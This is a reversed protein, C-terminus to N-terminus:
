EGNLAELVTRRMLEVPATQGTWLECQAVAQFVFMATGDVTPCGKARAAALLATELPNYVIDMVLTRSTLGEVSVPMADIRPVMGVSTANILIDVGGLDLDDLSTFGASLDRALARGKEESRNAIVLSGGRQVIGYGVARAAGGAGILAVKKGAITGRTELARMAGEADTNYGVLRGDRNVLTNVAGIKRATDNVEDLHAMVETKHPITVSAGGMNLHRMALAAGKAEDLGFALYVANVGLARFAANHMAPGLSHTVPNGFVGFLQTKADIGM